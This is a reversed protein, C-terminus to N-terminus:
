SNGISNYLVAAAYGRQAVLALRQKLISDVPAGLVQPHRVANFAIGHVGWTAMTEMPVCEYAVPLPILCTQLFLVEHQLSNQHEDFLDFTIYIGSYFYIFIVL